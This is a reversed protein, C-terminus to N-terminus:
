AYHFTVLWVSSSHEIRKVRWQVTPADNRMTQYDPLHGGHNDISEPQNKRKSPRSMPVAKKQGQHYHILNKAATCQDMLDVGGMGSNYLKVVKPCPVTSKNISGKERSQVSLTM